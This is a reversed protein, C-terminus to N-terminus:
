GEPLGGVYGGGPAKTLVQGRMTPAFSIHVWTGEEIVQDFQLMGASHADELQHCIVLPSGFAPCIFDVAHGTMHASNAVGGVAANLAPSRYGSNVHVPNKGLLERVTEMRSATDALVKLVDDPPTNDIDRHATAILEEYTFHPSLVIM